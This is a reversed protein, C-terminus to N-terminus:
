NKMLICFVEGFDKYKDRIITQLEKIQDNHQLFKLNEAAELESIGNMNTESGM